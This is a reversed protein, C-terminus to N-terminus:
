RGKERSNITSTRSVRKIVPDAWSGTIGYEFSAIQSFPDKLAKQAILAAIGIAPNVIAGAIAIGESLSPTVRVLLNQAERALDVQGHMTVRAASGQMLFDQTDAVGKTITLNAAIREFSFGKSFIDRFDLTVRKPLAQLSLIGLLKAVGPEIEQFRGDKAELKLQGSLSPIDFRTPNGNWKIPGELTASGGKMADPWGLRAFFRGVDTVDVKVTVDTNSLAGLAWHGAMVFKSEPNAIELRRLQWGSFDPQGLIALRGLAKGEYTFNDAILDVSPLRPDAVAPQRAQVETAVQPLVLNTLRAALKGDGAATWTLHGAVEPGALAARWEDDQRTAEIRLDHFRRRNVDLIGIQLDVGALIPTSGGSGGSMLGQWAEADVVDLKGAIRLGDSAPLAAAGGLSVMGRSIGGPATDDLLLEASAVRDLNAALVGRHGAHERLEVRLPQNTAAAKAFPAPLISSLGVLNSDFRLTTIRNRVGLIARWSTQGDLFALVPHKWVARARNINLAGAIEATIGGDAQNAAEFSLQEGFMLARGDRVNFSKETFAIRAGFRELTPLRPDLIVRNDQVTLEAKVASEKINHLPLDLELDLSADGVAKLGDTFSKIRAAAPTVQAYRLFDSTAGRAIGKILLREEHNGFAPISAHLGTLQVGLVTGSQGRVDMRSGRFVAEGTVGTLPPWGEAYDLTVGSAKTVVEFVGNKDGAFPFDRLPGKLRFRTDKSEGSLLARKLWAQMDSMSVPLYRWIERAEARVLM